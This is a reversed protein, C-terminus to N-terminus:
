YTQRGPDSAIEPLGFKKFYSVFGSICNSLFFYERNRQEEPLDELADLLKDRDTLERTIEDMGAGRALCGAVVEGWLVLQDRHAQLKETAGTLSNFHGYCVRSPALAILRDVSAVALKLNFPPPSSPRIAGKASIGAAEGAFLTNDREELFSMHHSAHGPTIVTRLCLGRGLEFRMGEEAVIVREEPVPLIKGYREAVDGLTAKSGEWLKEPALIHPKGKEHVVVKARPVRGIITGLGGAHDIHVHTAFVHTVDQPDVGLRALGEFLNEACNSPGVDILAVTEGRLVYCGLFEGFGPLPPMLDILNLEESIRYIREDGHGDGM